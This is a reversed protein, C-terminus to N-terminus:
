EVPSGSQEPHDVAQVGEGTDPTGRGIEDSEIVDADEQAALIQPLEIPAEDEIPSLGARATALARSMHEIEADTLPNDDVTILTPINGGAVQATGHTGHKAAAGATQEVVIERKQSIRKDLQVFAGVAGELSKPIAAAIGAAPNGIIRDLVVGRVSELAGIEAIESKVAETEAHAMVKRKVEQWHKERRIRWKANISSKQFGTWSMVDRIYPSTEDDDIREDEWVQRVSVGPRQIYRLFGRFVARSMQERSTTKAAAAPALENKKKRRKRKRAKPPAKSESM